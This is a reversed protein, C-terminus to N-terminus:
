RWRQICVYEVSRRIGIAEGLLRLEGSNACPQSGKVLAGERFLQGPESVFKSM